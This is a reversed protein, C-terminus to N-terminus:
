YRLVLCRMYVCCVHGIYCCQPKDCCLNTRVLTCQIGTSDHCSIHFHPYGCPIPRARLLARSRAAFHASIFHLVLLLLLWQAWCRRGYCRSCVCVVSRVCVFSIVIVTRRNRPAHWNRRCVPEADFQRQFLFLNELYARMKPSPWRISSADDDYGHQKACM